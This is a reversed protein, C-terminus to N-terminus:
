TTSAGTRYGYQDPNTPTGYANVDLGGAGSTSDSIGRTEEPRLPGHKALEKSAMALRNVKIRLNHLECLEKLLSDCTTKVTTEYLFENKKDGRHVNLLVM